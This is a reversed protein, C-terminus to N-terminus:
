RTTYMQNNDGHILGYVVEVYFWGLGEFLNRVQSEFALKSGSYPVSMDDIPKVEEDSDVM